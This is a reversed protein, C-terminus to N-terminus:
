PFHESWPFEFDDVFSSAHLPRPHNASIAKVLKELAKEAAKQRNSSFARSEDREFHSKENQIHIRNRLKRLDDLEAYIPDTSPGLLSHKKASTIYQDFKDLKKGRVYHLVSAKIGRVGENTYTKMRLHLDYLVAECVSGIIVIVPKRLLHSDHDIPDFQRQYLYALIRLNHNINDGLKFDGIFGASVKFM